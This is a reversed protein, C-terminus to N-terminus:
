RFYKRKLRPHPLGLSTCIVGGDFISNNDHLYISVHRDGHPRQPQIVEEHTQSCTILSQPM